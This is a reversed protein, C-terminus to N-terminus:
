CHVAHSIELDRILLERWRANVDILVDRLREPDEDAILLLVDLDHEVGLDRPLDLLARKVRALALLATGVSDQYIPEPRARLPLDIMGHTCLKPASASSTAGALQRAATRAFTSTIIPLYPSTAPFLHDCSNLRCAGCSDVRLRAM